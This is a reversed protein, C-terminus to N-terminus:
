RYENNGSSATELQTTLEAIDRLIEVQSRLHVSQLTKGLGNVASIVDEQLKNV